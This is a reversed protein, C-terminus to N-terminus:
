RTKNYFNEIIKNISILRSESMSNTNQCQIITNVLNNVEKQTLSTKSFLRKEFVDDLTHTDINYKSRIFELLYEIKKKAIDAHKSRNFYLNGITKTFDLSSNRYPKIIPISRQKRKSEIIIYLLAMLLLLYWAWKLPPTTLIFRLPSQAEDLRGGNSYYEDWYVTRNPLYSLCKSAYEANNEETLYYNTFALPYSHLYIKGRGFRIEVFNPLSDNVSGLNYIVVGSDTKFYNIWDFGGAKFQYLSDTVLIPNTFGLTISTDSLLENDTYYIHKEVGLTDLFDNNFDDASIFVHSGKFVAKRMMEFDYEDPHFSNGIILYNVLSDQKEKLTNYLPKDTLRIENKPFVHDLEQYLIFSGYPKKEDYGYTASWDIPKPTLLGVLILLSGM